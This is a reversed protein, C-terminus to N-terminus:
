IAIKELENIEKEIELITNYSMQLFEARTEKNKLLLNSGFSQPKMPDVAKKSKRKPKKNPFLKKLLSEPLNYCKSEFEHCTKGTRRVKDCKCYCRQYLGDKKLLFYIHESEHDGGKNLCFHSNMDIRYWNKFEKFDRIPYDWGPNMNNIAREIMLQTEDTVKSEHQQKHTKFEPIPNIPTIVTEGNYTQLTCQNWPLDPIDEPYVFQKTYVQSRAKGKNMKKSHIMRLSRKYVKDDIVDSWPNVNPHRKGLKAEIEKVFQKSLNHCTEPELYLDKWYLHIGTKRYQHENKTVEKLPTKCVIISFSKHFYFEVVEHMIKLVEDLPFENNIESNDITENENGDVSDSEHTEGITELVDLDCFMKCVPTICECLFLDEGDEIAKQYLEWFKDMLHEPIALTGGDYAVHTATRTDSQSKKKFCGNEFLWKVLEHESRM